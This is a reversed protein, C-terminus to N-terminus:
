KEGWKKVIRKPQIMQTKHTRSEPTAVPASKTGNLQAIIKKLQDPDDIQLTKLQQLLNSPSSYSNEKPGAVSAILYMEDAMTQLALLGARVGKDVYANAVDTAEQKIEALDAPELKVKPSIYKIASRNLYDTIKAKATAPDRVGTFARATQTIAAPLQQGLSNFTSTVSPNRDLEALIGEFISNLKSYHDDVGERRINGRQRGSKTKRSPRQNTSSAAATPTQATPAATPTQATPAATPTQAPTATTRTAAKPLKSVIMQMGTAANRVFSDTWQTRVKRQAPSQHSAWSSIYDALTTGSKGFM